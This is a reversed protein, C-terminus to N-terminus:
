LLSSQAAYVLDGWNWGRGCNAADEENNGSGAVRRRRGVVCSLSYWDNWKKRRQGCDSDKNYYLTCFLFSFGALNEETKMECLRVTLIFILRINSNMKIRLNTLLSTQRINIWRIIEFWSKNSKRGGCIWTWKMWMSLGMWTWVPYMFKMFWDLSSFLSVEVTNDLVENM